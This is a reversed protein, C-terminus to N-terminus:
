PRPKSGPNIEPLATEVEGRELAALAARWADLLSGDVAPLPRDPHEWGGNVGRGPGLFRLVMAIQEVHARGADYAALLNGVVGEAELMAALANHAREAALALHGAVERAGSELTTIASRALQHAHRAETLARRAEDVSPGTPHPEGLALAVARHQETREAEVLAAEAADVVGLASMSNERAQVIAQRLRENRQEIHRRETVARAL